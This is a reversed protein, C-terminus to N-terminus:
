VNKEEEDDLYDFISMQKVVMESVEKPSNKEYIEHITLDSKLDSLYIPVAGMEILRMNGSEMQAQQSVLLHTWHYHLNLVATFWIPGTNISTALVIQERSLGCVYINRDLTNTVDFYGFPDCACVITMQGEDIAKRCESLRDFMHDAVFEVLKGKSKLVKDEVYADTGKMNSTIFTRKAKLGKEILRSLSHKYNSKLDQPGVISLCDGELFSLNGQYFLISPKRDGLKNLFSPYNDEYQTTVKIGNSELNHLSYMLHPMLANRAIMKDALFGEIGVIQTLGEYSMGFLASVDKKPSEEVLKEVVNWEDSSLPQEKTPIIDTCYLLVAYSELNLEIKMM